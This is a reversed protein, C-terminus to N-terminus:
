GVTVGGKVSKSLHVRPSRRPSCQSAVICPLGRGRHAEPSAMAFPVRVLIDLPLAVSSLASNICIAGYCPIIEVERPLRKLNGTATRYGPWRQVLGM